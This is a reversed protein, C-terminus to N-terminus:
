ELVIKKVERGKQTRIEIFYLGAPHSSLDIEIQATNLVQASVVRGMADWVRLREMHEQSSIQFIGSSPNPYINISSSELAQDTSLPETCDSVLDGGTYKWFFDRSGDEYEYYRVIQITDQFLTMDFLSQPFETPQVFEQTHLGCWQSGDWRAVGFIPLEGIFYFNGAVYLYEDKLLMRKVGGATSLNGFEDRFPGGVDNYTEGDWRVLHHGVNGLFVPIGGGIYLEGQFVEMDTVNIQSGSLGEGVFELAGNELRAFDDPGEGMEFNGAVYYHGDYYQIDNFLSFGIDDTEWLMPEWQDGSLKAINYIPVGDVETFTGLAFLTDNTWVLHRIPDSFDWPYTWEEGNFYAINPMQQTGVYAATGGVLIGDDYDAFTIVSCSVTDAIVQWGEGNYGAIYDPGVDSNFCAVWISMQLNHSYGFFRPNWAEDSNDFSHWYEPQAISNQSLAISM